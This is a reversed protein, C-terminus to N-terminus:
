ALRVQQEAVAGANLYATRFDTAAQEVEARLDVLGAELEFRSQALQSRAKAINGQNRDFLPVSVDVEIGWDNVDSFGIAKQQFQRTYGAKPTGEPYAKTREVHVDSAAKDAQLRLSLIDPRNQQALAWAEEAPLPRATVPAELNGEGDFAPDADKRGLLAR